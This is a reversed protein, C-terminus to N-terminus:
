FVYSGSTTIYRQDDVAFIDNSDRQRRGYRIGVEFGGKLRFLLGAYYDKTQDHRRAGGLEPSPEPYDSDRLSYGMQLGWHVGFYNDLALARFDDRYYLNSEFTSFFLQKEWRGTLRTFGTPRYVLQTLAVPGSYPAAGFAPDSAELDTRGWAFRGSLRSSPSFELGLYGNKQVADHRVEVSKFTSERREYLAFLRTRARPRWGIEGGVTTEDRDLAADITVQQFDPDDVTGVNVLFVTSPERYRYQLREARVAFDTFPGVFVRLTESVSADNERVRQTVESSPRWFQSAWRGKTTLLLAGLLVDFQGETENNLSNLGAHQLFVEGALKDRVTLVMRHGFRTQGEVEPGMRIVIDSQRPTSSVQPTLFINGDYGINDIVFRPHVDFPGWRRTDQLEPFPHDRTPTQAAAGGGGLAALLLVCLAFRRWAASRGEGSRRSPGPRAPAHPIPRSLIM